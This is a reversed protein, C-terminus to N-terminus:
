RAHEDIQSALDDESAYSGRWHYSVEGSRDIFITNPLGPGVDLLKAIPADSVGSGPDAYSPYPLPLESLFTEAAATSDAVDVGVFAIAGAHHVAQSQFFPFEHRCPGCWSAWANIVIPFGELSDLRRQLADPGGGLLSNADARLAQLPEPADAIPAEAENLSLRSSPNGASDDGGCATLSGAAVVALMTVLRVTALM